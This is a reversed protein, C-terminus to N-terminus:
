KPKRPQVMRAAQDVVGRFRTQWTGERILYLLRDAEEGRNVRRLFQARELLWNPNTSEADFAAAYARDATDVQGQADLSHALRGWAQADHGRGALPTTEYAWALEKEGLRRLARAALSSVLDVDPDIARWRDAARVIKAAMPKAARADVQPLGEALSAYAILLREYDDRFPELQIVDGLRAYDAEVAREFYTVVRDMTGRGYALAAGLRFLETNIRDNSWALQEKLHPEVAAEARDVQNVALYYRAAALALELQQEREHKPSPKAARAHPASDIRENGEVLSPPDALITQAQAFDRLGWVARLQSFLHVLSLHNEPTSKIVLCGNLERISGVEGGRSAWEDPTGVTDMIMTTVHDIFAQSSQLNTDAEDQNLSLLDRIDYVRTDTTRQLDNKTSIHVVGEIIAFWPRDGLKLDPMSQGALQLVMRLAQEAPVHNLQINIRTGQEIGAEELAAWNVFFNVGTTNRFYDIVNVLKNDEFNVPLPDQLKFKVRRNILSDGADETFAGLRMATRQPWDSPYTILESYPITAETLESSRRAIRLDPELSGPWSQERRSRGSNSGRPADFFPNTQEILETSHRAIRLSRERIYARSRVAIQSDEVMMKMAEAAPNGPEIFLAQNILQISREYDQVKRLDAARQLLRQVADMQEIKSTMRRMQADQADVSSQHAQHAGDASAAAKSILEFSDNARSRLETYQAAGLVHRANDIRIKAQQIADIAANFNKASAEQNAKAMLEAYEATAAQASVQIEAMATGALDRPVFSSSAKAEVVALAKKYQGNDPDLTMADSYCKAALRFLGRAEAQQGEVFKEQAVLRRAQAFPDDDNQKAPNAQVQPNKVAAAPPDELLVPVNYPAWNERRGHKVKYQEYMADNELVLLSTYPSMVHMAQSLKVIGDRHAAIAAEDEEPPPSVVLRDLELKAWSRPLYGAHYTVLAAQVKREFPQGNLRGTVTFKTLLEAGFVAADLRTVACLEQGHILSDEFPIVALTPRDDLTVKVDLLRPSNLTSFLEFARWGVSEDPNIQTVYGGTRSAAQQMWTRAGRRGVMVGVYEMGPPILELLKREDRTGLVPTASGLHILVRHPAPETENAKAQAAGAATLARELDLAGILHAQEAFAVAARVQEATVPQPEDRWAQAKTNATLVSFTDDHGANELLTRMIRIQTRALLPNRDASTELLFVWHRRPSVQERPLDPQYRLMLYRQGQHLDTALRASEPAPLAQAKLSLVIDRDLSTWNTAAALLLDGGQKRTTLDHSPSTVELKEGECVLMRLSWQAAEAPRQTGARDASANAFEAASTHGAPFRYTAIGYAADLKQTYCLIIRKEERPEIPFVRMKFTTGDIWELLAPDRRAYRIEEFIDRARNREVMGGEMLRKGVYMALRSISADAPLPFIFTGEVRAQEHNFYTQDVTTRAFGDEIHVDVHYRRLSLRHEQGADDLVVLAGGAYASAPILAADAATMLERTWALAHAARPAPMTQDDTSSWQEGAEVLREVGAVRVKGQTVLLSTAAKGAAYTQGEIVDVAFRTGLATFKRDPTTVTFTALDGATQPSPAVEIYVSGRTVSLQRAAIIRVSTDGNLYVVSGDNLSVRRRQDKGTTISQGVSVAVSQKAPTAPQAVLYNMAPQAQRPAPVSPNAQQPETAITNPPLSHQSLHRWTHWGLGLVMTLVAAVGLWRAIRSPQHPVADARTAVQQTRARAAARMAEVTRATFRADPHQPRYAHQLLHAVNEDGITSHEGAAQAPNGTPESDPDHTM